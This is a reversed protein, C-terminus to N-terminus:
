KSLSGLASAMSTGPKALPGLTLGDHNLEEEVLGLLQGTIGM